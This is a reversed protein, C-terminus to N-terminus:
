EFHPIRAIIGKKLTEPREAWPMVGDPKQCYLSACDLVAASTASLNDADCSLDGFVYTFKNPATFAVVCAHSCASMCQVSEIALENKSYRFRDQQTLKKLLKEGGSVGVKKGDQWTSACTSCVLIKHKTEM